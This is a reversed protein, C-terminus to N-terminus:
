LVLHEIGNGTKHFLCKCIPLNVNRYYLATYYRYIKAIRLKAVYFGKVKWHSGHLWLLSNHKIMISGTKYINNVTYTINVPATVGTFSWATHPDQQLKPVVPATSPAWKRFTSKNEDNEVVHNETHKTYQRMDKAMAVYLIIKWLNTNTNNTMWVHMISFFAIVADLKCPILTNNWLVWGM